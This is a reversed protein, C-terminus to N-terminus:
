LRLPDQYHFPEGRAIEIACRQSIQHIILHRGGIRGIDPGLEVLVVARHAIPQVPADAQFPIVQAREAALFVRGAQRDPLRFDIGALTGGFLQGGLLFVGLDLALGLGLLVADLALDGSQVPLVVM